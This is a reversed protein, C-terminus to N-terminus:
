KESYINDVVIPITTTAAGAERAQLCINQPRKSHFFNVFTTAFSLVGCFPYYSPYRCDTPATCLLPLSLAPESAQSQM